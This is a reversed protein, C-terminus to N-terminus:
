GIMIQEEPYHFVAEGGKRQLAYILTLPGVRGFYMLVIIFLRGAVTLTPTFDVSLGVTGFASACEFVVKIFDGQSNAVPNHPYETLLLALVFVALLTMALLLLTVAQELNDRGVARGFLSPRTLRRLRSVIVVLVVGVTTTKVGGGTSGPSAGIFMLTILVFLSANTLGPMAVTNFGATRATVSQFLARLLAQGPPHSALSHSREFFYLLAAGGFILILTMLLVMKTHFSIRRKAPDPDRRITDSLDIMVFFGIGGLVILGMVTFNVAPDGAYGVLNDPFLSFGANNFASVSHFLAQWLATRPPLDQVWRLFLILAGLAEIAVTLGLARYIMEALSYRRLKLFSGAVAGSVSFSARRKMMFLFFTSLTMVGFGGVQILALIVAQGFFTFTTGPDVVVLGTVCVASGSTFLADVFTVPKERSIPLKLLLAGALIVAAFSLLTLQAANMRGLLARLWSLM